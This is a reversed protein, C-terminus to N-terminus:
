ASALATVLRGDDTDGSAEWFFVGGLGLARAWGAKAALTAPTDYSWWESGCVAVSTGALDATAPCRGILVRYNEMGAEISGPAPGSAVSGASSGSVGTWGRGYFGVGLLLQDPRVGMSLYTAITESASFGPGLSGPEAFLASHPATRIPTWTGAYDYTMVNFWDVSGAASGYGGVQIQSPGAPVASTVLRGNFESRLAAMLQPYGSGSDPYEWDIDIGDFLGAWRPDDILARCSAAFRAPDAAAASFGGSGSAGGFSWLLRLQPFQSKLKRLQGFMGAPQGAPDAVGDVSNISDYSLGTEVFPDGQVCRGDSVNGFALNLHTLRAAAGSTVLDLPHFGSYAGWTTLYGVVRWPEEQTSPGEQPSSGQQPSPAPGTPQPSVPVSSAAAPGLASRPVAVGGDVGTRDRSTAEDRAGPMAACAVCLVGVAISVLVSRLVGRDSVRVM